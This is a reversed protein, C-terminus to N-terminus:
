RERRIRTCAALAAALPLVSAAVRGRSRPVSGCALSDCADRTGDGDLDSQDSNADVPCNDCADPTGDGDGDAGACAREVAGRDCRATGDGDGDVPRTVGRQDESACWAADASDIVPSDDLPALTPTPGGNDALWALKPDTQSLDGPGDLTCRRGRSLNHGLSELWVTSWADSCGDLVSNAVEFRGDGALAAGETHPPLLGFRDITSSVIRATGTGRHLVGARAPAGAVAAPAGVMTVDQLLHDASGALAVQDPQNSEFTSRAADFAGGVYIAGGQAFGTNLLFHSDRVTVDAGPAYIAGGLDLPGTQFSRNGRFTSREITASGALMGVARYCNSDVLTDTMSLQGAEMWIAGGSVLAFNACPEATPPLASGDGGLQSDSVVFAANVGYLGAGMMADCTRVVSHSLTVTGAVAYIAGGNLIATDDEFLVDDLTTAGADHVLGGGHPSTKNQRIDAREVSLTAGRNRLAPGGKRIWLDSLSVAGAGPRVDFVGDLSAGDVITIARGAGVITLPATVDLDGTAAADEGAGGISLKYWAADLQIVDAGSGAACGDVARDENAAIVAERLSCNGTTGLSLDDDAFDVTITAARVPGGVLVAALGLWCGAAVAASRGAGARRKARPTRARLWLALVALWELPARSGGGAVGSCSPIDCVDGVGDGDADAQTPDAAFPCVDCPDAWGDGDADAAGCNSLVALGRSGTSAYVFSGYAAIEVTGRVPLSELAVLQDPDSRDFVQIRPGGVDPQLTYARQRAVAVRSAGSGPLTWVTAAPSGARVDGIVLETTAAGDPTFVAYARGDAMSFAGITGWGPNWSGADAISLGALDLIRLRGGVAPLFLRGADVRISSTNAALQWPTSTSALITPSAPPSVDRIEVRTESVASPNDRAVLLLPRAGAGTLDSERILWVAQPGALSPSTYIPGQLNTTRWLRFNATVTGVMVDGLIKSDDRAVSPAPALTGLAVPRLPDHVDVLAAGALVRNGDRSAEGVIATAALPATVASAVVAPAAPDSVDVLQYGDKPGSAATGLVFADEGRLELESASAIPVSGLIEPVWSSTVDIVLLKPPNTSQTVYLKPGVARMRGVSALSMTGQNYIHAPDGVDLVALRQDSRAVYARTGSVAVDAFTMAGNTYQDLFAVNAPDTVDLIALGGSQVHTYLATGQLTIPRLAGLGTFSDLPVPASPDSVDVTRLGDLPDGVYAVGAAAVVGLGPVPAIARLVPAAPDSVDYIRLSQDTAVYLTPEDVALGNVVEAVIPVSGLELPASPASVDFIRVSGGIAQYLHDGAVALHGAEGGIQSVVELAGPPAPEAHATSPAAAGTLVLAATGALVARALRRSM